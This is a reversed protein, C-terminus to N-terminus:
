LNVYFNVTHNMFSNSCTLRMVFSKTIIYIQCLTNSLIIAVVVMGLGLGIRFDDHPGMLATPIQSCQLDSLQQFYKIYKDSNFGNLGAVFRISMRFHDNEWHRDLLEVVDDQKAIWWAALFEQITLHIFQFLEEDFATFSTVLGLFSSGFEEGFTEDIQQLSYTMKPSSSCLGKYAFHCLENFKKSIDPPLKDLSTIIQPNKGMKKLHRRITQLIFEKYLMTLTDPLEEKKSYVFIILSCVLPIYCLSLVDQRNELEGILVEAKIPTLTKRLCLKVESEGFGLVQIYKYVRAVEKLLASAYTRSTVVVSCNHLRHSSIIEAILSSTKDEDCLEDWGDFLFVVGEGNNQEVWDVIHPLDHSEYVSSLLDRLTKASHVKSTRLPCFLMLKYGLHDLHGRAWMNCLKRCLTTKGVGPPGDIVVRLNKIDTDNQKMPQLIDAIGVEVTEPVHLTEVFEDIRGRLMLWTKKQESSRFYSLRDKNKILALKGYYDQGVHPPWDSM